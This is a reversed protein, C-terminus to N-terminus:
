NNIKYVRVTKRSVRRIEDVRPGSIYTLNNNVYTNNIITTQTYYYLRGQHRYM